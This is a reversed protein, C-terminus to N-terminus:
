ATQKASLIDALFRHSLARYRGWDAWAPDVEGVRNLFDATQSLAAAPRWEWGGISEGPDRPALIADGPMRVLFAYTAFDFRRGLGQHILEYSAIGLCREVQVQNAAPGIVLGTEEEIERALTEEIPEGVHIGGTPLRFAAPPYFTKIHLLIGTAPNGRHMVYCVEARRQDSVLVQNNGTLFPHDVVLRHHCIPIRGWHAELQALEDPEISKELRMRDREGLSEGAV